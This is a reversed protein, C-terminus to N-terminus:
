ILIRYSVINIFRYSAINDGGPTFSCGITCTGNSAVTFTIRICPVFESSVPIPTTRGILSATFIFAVARIIRIAERPKYTPSFVARFSAAEIITRITTFEEGVNEVWTLIKMNNQYAICM